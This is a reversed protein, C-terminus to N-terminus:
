REHLDDRSVRRGGFHFGADLMALAHRKSQESKEVLDVLEDALLQSVSTSRRAAIVRLKKLLEKDLSLTINQKM